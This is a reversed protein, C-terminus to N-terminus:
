RLGKQSEMREESCLRLLEERLLEKDDEPTTTHDCPKELIWYEASVREMIFTFTGNGDRVKTVGEENSGLRNQSNRIEDWMVKFKDGDKATKFIAETNGDKLLGYKIPTQDALDRISKIPLKSGDSPKKVLVTIGFTM